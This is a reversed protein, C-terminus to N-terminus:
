VRIEDEAASCTRSSLEAILPNVTNELYDTVQQPARGIFLKPDLIDKFMPAVKAFLPDGALREILDNPKGEAKVVKSAEMSHTRIAEHLDQRDGGARDAEMLSNETAM